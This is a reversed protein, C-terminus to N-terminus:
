ADEGTFWRPVVREVGHCRQHSVLGVAEGAKEVVGEPATDLQLMVRPRDESSACDSGFRAFSIAWRRGCLASM